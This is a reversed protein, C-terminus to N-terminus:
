LEKVRTAAAEVTVKQAIARTLVWVGIHGPVVEDYRVNAFGRISRLQDQIHKKCELIYPEGALMMDSPHYSPLIDVVALTAGERLLRRDERLIKYRGVFPIEHFGYRFFVFPYSDSHTYSIYFLCYWHRFVYMITVLNFSGGKLRTREANGIKYSTPFRKTIDEVARSGIEFAGGLFRAFQTFVTEQARIMKAFEVMQPSTDVSVITEADLFAHQLARTSIGVGCCLDAVHANPKGVIRRLDRAIAERVPVASSSFFL